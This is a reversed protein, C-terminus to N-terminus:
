DAAPSTHTTSTLWCGYSFQAARQRWIWNWQIGGEPAANIKHRWLKYTQTQKRHIFSCVIAPDAWPPLEKFCIDRLSVREHIGFSRWKHSFFSLFLLDWHCCCCFTATRHTKLGVFKEVPGVFVMKWLPVLWASIHASIQSDLSAEGRFGQPLPVPLPSSVSSPQSSPSGQRPTVDCPKHHRM